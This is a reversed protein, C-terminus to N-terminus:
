FQFEGEVVIKGGEGIWFRDEADIVENVQKKRLFRDRTDWNRPGPVMKYGQIEGRKLMGRLQTGCQSQRVKVGPNRAQFANFLDRADFDTGYQSALWRISDRLLAPVSAQKKSEGAGEKDGLMDFM